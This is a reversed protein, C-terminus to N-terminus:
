TLAEVPCLAGAGYGGKAASWTCISCMRYSPSYVHMETFAWHKSIWVLMFWIPAGTKIHFLNHSPPFFCFVFFVFDDLFYPGHLDM